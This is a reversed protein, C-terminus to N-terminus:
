VEWKTIGGVYIEKVVPMNIVEEPEGEAVIRGENLVTINDALQLVVDVNHEVVVLTKEGSLRSLLNVVDGREKPSIGSTPEDMLLVDPDTLLAMGIQVRRQEGYSCRSVILEHKHYLGILRLIDEVKEQIDRDKKYDKFLSLKNKSQAAIWLNEYVTLNPFVQTYQHTRVMGKRAIIHQPLGTIDEGNLYVKGASPRLAGSLINILTTKGSGNPGIIARFEGKSVELNIDRLAVFGFFEKRINETRLIIEDKM